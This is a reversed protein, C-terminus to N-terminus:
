KDIERKSHIIKLGGLEMVKHGVGAPKPEAVPAVASKKEALTKLHARWENRLEAAVGSIDDLLLLRRYALRKLQRCVLELEDLVRVAFNGDVKVPASFVTPTGASAPDAQETGLLMESDENDLNAILKLGIPTKAYATQWPGLQTDADEFITHYLKGFRMLVERADRTGWDLADQDDSLDLEKCVPLKKLVAWPAVGMLKFIVDDGVGKRARVFFARLEPRDLNLYTDLPHRTDDWGMLALMAFDELARVLCFFMQDYLMRKEIEPVSDAAAFLARGAALHGEAAGDVQSQLLRRLLTLAEPGKLPTRKVIQSLFQRDESM